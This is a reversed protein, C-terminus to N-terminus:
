KRKYNRPIYDIIKELLEFAINRAEAEDEPPLGYVSAHHPIPPKDLIPTYIVDFGLETFAKVKLSVEGFCRNFRIAACYAPMCDAKTLISLEEEDIRRFFIDPQPEGEVVWKGKRIARFVTVDLPINKSDSM